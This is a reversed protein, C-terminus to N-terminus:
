RICVCVVSVCVRWVSGLCLYQVKGRQGEDVSTELRFQGM